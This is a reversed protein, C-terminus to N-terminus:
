PGVLLSISVDVEAEIPGVDILTTAATAVNSFVRLRYVHHQALPYLLDSVVFPLANMDSDFRSLLLGTQTAAVSALVTTDVISLEVICRARPTLIQNTPLVTGDIALTFLM